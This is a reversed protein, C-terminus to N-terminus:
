PDSRVLYPTIETIGQARRELMNQRAQKPESSILRVSPSIAKFMIDQHENDLTRNEKSTESLFELRKKALHQFIGNRMLFKLQEDDVLKMDLGDFLNTEDWQMDQEVEAHKLMEIKEEEIIDARQEDHREVEQGNSPNSDDGAEDLIRM